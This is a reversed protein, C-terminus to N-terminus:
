HLPESMLNAASKLKPCMDIPMGCGPIISSVTSRLRIRFLSAYCSHRSEGQELYMATRPM